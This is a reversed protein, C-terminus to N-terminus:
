KLTVNRLNYIQGYPTNDFGNFINAAAYNSEPHYIFLCPLDYALIEQLQDYIVKQEAPDFTAAGKELLEDVEDNFYRYDNLGGGSHMYRTIDPDSGIGMSGVMSMYTDEPQEGFIVADMADYIAGTALSIINMEIGVEKLRHQLLQAIESFVVNDNAIMSDFSCKQGKPNIYIGDGGLTYGAEELVQKAKQPNFPYPEGLDKFSAHSPSYPTICPAAHGYLVSNIVEQKDIAMTMAQRLPLDQFLEVQTNTTLYAFRLQPYSFSQFKSISMIRDVEIPAIDFIFDLEGAEFSALRVSIDPIPRVEVFKIAPTGGWYDENATLYVGIDPKWDSMTYAGTGMAVPNYNTFGNQDFGHSQVFEKCLIGMTFRHIAPGFPYKLNFVVTYDDPTEISDIFAYETRQNSKQDPDLLLEYTYKVDTSTFPTGDHFKVGQRLKFTWVLGDSSLSYDTALCPKLEYNGEYRVLGENILYIVLGSRADTTRFPVLYQVDSIQGIIFTNGGSAFSKGDSVLPPPPPPTTPATTQPTTATPTPPTTTTCAGLFLLSSLLILLSKALWKQRFASSSM